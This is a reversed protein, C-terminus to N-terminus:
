LLLWSLSLLNQGMYHHKVAPAAGHLKFFPILLWQKPFDLCTATSTQLLLMFSLGTAGNLDVSDLSSHSIFLLFPPTGTTSVSYFVIQVTLAFFTFQKVGM